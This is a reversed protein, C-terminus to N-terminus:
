MGEDEVPIATQGEIEMDKFMHASTLLEIMADVTLATGKVIDSNGDTAELVVRRLERLIVPTTLKRTGM